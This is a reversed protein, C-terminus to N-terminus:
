VEWFFHYPIVNLYGNKNTYWFFFISFLIFISVIIKRINKDYIRSTIEPILLCSFALYYYAIRTLAGTSLVGLSQFYVGIILILRYLNVLKTNVKILFSFLFLILYFFYMSIAPTETFTETYHSYRTLSILYSLIIKLFPILLLSFLALLFGFLQSIRLKKLPYLFLFLIASFHFFSALLTVLLFKKTKETFLFHFSIYILGIALAQRLGSFSFIYLGFSVYIIYSLVIDKSYKYIIYSLFFIIIASVLAIYVQFSDVFFYVIKNFILYGKEMNTHYSFISLISHSSLNEFIWKYTGEGRDLDTGCTSSRLAQVLWIPIASFVILKLRKHPNFCTRILILYVFLLFFIIM